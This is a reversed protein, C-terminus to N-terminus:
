DTLMGGNAEISEGVLYASDESALFAIVKAMEESTGLRRQPISSLFRDIMEQTSFREHFPTAIVGPNICNVRIGFQILEKAMAKTFTIVGGKATAYAVAGPGGGHRGAISAVNVITGSRQQIMRPLFARTVLFVSDLNLSMVRRWLDYDMEDLTRRELLSGANNVLVDIRGFDAILNGAMQTVQGPDSVDCAYVRAKGFPLARVREFTERAGPENHFYHIAIQYGRTALEIASAQGIGSSAGTILAVKGNTEPMEM